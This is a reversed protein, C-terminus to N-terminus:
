RAQVSRRVAEAQLPPVSHRLRKRTSHYRHQVRSPRGRAEAPAGALSSTAQAARGRPLAPRRTGCRPSWRQRAEGVTRVTATASLAHEARTGLRRQALRETTMTGWMLLQTNRHGRRRGGGRTCRELAPCRWATGPRARATGPTRRWAREAPGTAPWAPEAPTELQAGSRSDFGLLAVQGTRLTERRACGRPHQLGRPRSCLVAPSFQDATQQPAASVLSWGPSARGGAARGPAHGGCVAPGRCRSTRSLRCRDARLRATERQGM